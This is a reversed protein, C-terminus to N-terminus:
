KDEIVLNQKMANVLMEKEIALQAELSTIKRQIRNILAMKAEDFSPYYDNYQTHRACKKGDIWISVETEREVEIPDVTGRWRNVEYFIM